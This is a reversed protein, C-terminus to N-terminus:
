KLEIEGKPTRIRAILRASDAGDIGMAVGLARLARRVGDPDPHVAKLGILQCGAPASTAPHPTDEWDILFPVVGDFPMAYPDTLKWSLASGDPRERSGAFVAGLDFGALGAAAAEAAIDTSRRAWTLLRPELLDDLGFVRGRRPAELDPDPAIIELYTTPGLSLVANHTGYDPHRGAIAPRVGLIKEFADVGAELDPVGYVLHDVGTPFAPDSVAGCGSLMVAIMVAIIVAIPARIM